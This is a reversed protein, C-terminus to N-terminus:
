QWHLIRALVEGKRLGRLGLLSIRPSLEQARTKVEAEVKQYDGAFLERVPKGYIAEYRLATNLSPKRRFAEHRSVEAGTSVGLLFAVEDQSFGSRM